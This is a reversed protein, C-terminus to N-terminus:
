DKTLGRTIIMEDVIVKYLRRLEEETMPVDLAKCIAMDFRVRIESPALEAAGFLTQQVKERLGWYGEYRADFNRDLQERLCPFKRNAFADFVAALEKVKEKKPFIKM